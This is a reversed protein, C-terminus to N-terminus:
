RQISLIQQSAASHSLLQVIYLGPSLLETNAEFNGPQTYQWEVFQESGCLSFIRINIPDSTETRITLRNTAPNPFLSFSPAYAENLGVPWKGFSLADLYLRISKGTQSNDNTIRIFASDPLQNNRYFSSLTKEYTNWRLPISSGNAIIPLTDKFFLITDRSTGNWRSLLLTLEAHQSTNEPIYLNRISISQPTDTYASSQEIIGNKLPSSLTDSELLAFYNGLFATFPLAGFNVVSFKSLNGQKTQWSSLRGTSDTQEFSLNQLQAFVCLPM